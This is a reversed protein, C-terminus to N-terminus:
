PLLATRHEDGMSEFSKPLLKEPNTRRRATERQAVDTFSEITVATESQDSLLACTVAHM